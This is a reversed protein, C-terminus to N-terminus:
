HILGKEHLDLEGGEIMIVNPSRNNDVWVWVDYWHDHIYEQANRLAPDMDEKKWKDSAYSVSDGAGIAHIKVKPVKVETFCDAERQHWREFTEEARDMGPPIPHCAPYEHKPFAYIAKREDDWWLIPPHSRKLEKVHPKGRRDIFVYEVLVGLGVLETKPMPLQHAKPWYCVGDKCRSWTTKGTQQWQLKVTRWAARSALDDKGYVDYADRYAEGWEGQLHDPLTRPSPDPPDHISQLKNRKRRARGM